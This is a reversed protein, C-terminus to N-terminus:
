KTRSQGSVPSLSKLYSAMALRDADSLLATNRVVDAMAGGVSDFDPTFGDKLVSAIEAESWDALGTKDPTLNPVFGKGEINPGGSLRKEPIVAGALNRPSHCEACHGVGEVLYHGRNWAPSQQPDYGIVTGNLFVLKWLGLGRRISYPFALDHDPTKGKVTPLTKLYAFIDAADEPSLHRYSTYPFAPYYTHRDPATGERLARIFQAETWTGIGDILDPSINPPYFIGFPTKLPQGGGIHRRDTSDPSIHCSVCGGAAFLVEGNAIDPARSSQLRGDSRFVSYADFGSLWFLGFGILAIAGILIRVLKAM